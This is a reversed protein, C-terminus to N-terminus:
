TRRLSITFSQGTSPWTNLVQALGQVAVQSFGLGIHIKTHSALHAQGKPVTSSRLTLLHTVDSSHPIYTVLNHGWKQVNERLTSTRWSLIRYLAKDIWTIYSCTVLEWISLANKIITSPTKCPKENIISLDSIFTYRTLEWIDNYLFLAQPCMMYIIDSLSDYCGQTLSIYHSSSVVSSFFSGVSEIPFTTNTLHLM